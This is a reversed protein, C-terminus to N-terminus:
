AINATVEVATTMWTTRAELRKLNALKPTKYGKPMASFDAKNGDIDM